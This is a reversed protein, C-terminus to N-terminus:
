NNLNAPQTTCSIGFHLSFLNVKFKENVLGISDPLTVVFLYSSLECHILPHIHLFWM